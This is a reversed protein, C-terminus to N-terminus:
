RTCLFNSQCPKKARWYFTRRVVCRGKDKKRGHCVDAPHSLRYVGVPSVPIPGTSSPASPDMSVM